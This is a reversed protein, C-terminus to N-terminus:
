RFRVTQVYSWDWRLDQKPGGDIKLILRTGDPVEPLPLDLTVTGRSRWDHVPDVIQKKLLQERGDPTTVLIECGIGDSHNEGQYAAPLVGIGVTVFRSSRPIPFKLEGPPPVNRTERGEVLAPQPDPFGPAEPPVSFGIVQRPDFPGAKIQVHSVYSQDWAGNGAPGRETRIRVSGVPIQSPFFIRASQMGRDQAATRPQLLRSFLLQPPQTGHLYEVIFEVGDTEGPDYAQPMLGFSFVIQQDNPEVPFTISGPAHVLTIPEGFLETIGTGQTAIALPARNSLPHRLYTVAETAADNAGSPKPLSYFAVSGSRAFGGVPARFRIRRVKKGSLPDHYLSIVDSTDALLPSLLVPVRLSLPSIRFSEAPANERTEIDVFLPSPHYAIKRLAGGPSSGLDLSFLLLAEPRAPVEIWEELTFRAQGLPAPAPNETPAIENKEFLVYGRRARIPQYFRLVAELTLPDDASPLRGDITQLKLLFFDPRRAADNMFRANLKQLYPHYVNFSGGGMPRPRYNMGNLLLIGQEYGFFDISGQGVDRGIDTLEARRKQQQLENERQTKTKGPAALYRLNAEFKRPVELALEGLRRASFSSTAAVAAVSAIGCLAAAWLIKRGDAAPADRRWMTMALLPAILTAFGFFMYVHGDARVFGHKWQLLGILAFFGLILGRSLRPRAMFAHLTLAGAFTGAIVLAAALMRPEADLGMTANYGSSLALLAHFYDPLNGLHQGAGLWGALFTALSLAMAVFARGPPPTLFGDLLVVALSAGALTAHSGKMLVSFGLLLSAIAETAGFTKGGNRVLLAIAALLVAVDYVLDGVSPLFLILSMLWLWRWIGSPFRGFVQLSLFAFAAKFILDGIFYGLFLYGSYTHGYALFGFPGTMAVTDGGFQRGTALMWAYSGYNSSDLGWSMAERPPLLFYLTLALWGALKGALAAISHGASAPSPQSQNKM